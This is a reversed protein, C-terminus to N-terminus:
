EVGPLEFDAAEDVIRHRQRPFLEERQRLGSVDAVKMAHRRPAAVVIMPAADPEARQRLEDNWLGVRFEDEAGRVVEHGAREDGVGRVEREHARYVVIHQEYVRPLTFRKWAFMAPRAAHDRRLEVRPLAGLPDPLDIEQRVILFAEPFDAAVGVGGLGPE